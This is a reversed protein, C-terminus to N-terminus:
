TFSDSAMAISETGTFDVTATEGIAWIWASPLPKLLAEVEVGWPVAASAGHVMRDTGPILGKASSVMMRARGLM